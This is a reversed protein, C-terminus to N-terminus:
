APRSQWHRAGGPHIKLRRGGLKAYFGRENEGQHHHHPQLLRREERGARGRHIVRLHQGLRRNPLSHTLRPAFPPAICLTASYSCFLVYAWDYGFPSPAVWSFGFNVPMFPGQESPAWVNRWGLAATVADTTGALPAGFRANAAAAAAAAAAVRARVGPLGGGGGAASTLGVAGGGLPAAFRALPAAPACVGACHDFNCSCAESACDRDFSCPFGGPLGPPYVPPLASPPALPPATAFLAVPQLGAGAFSLGGPQEAVAGRRGWAFRGSFAVAFENPNALGPQPTVLIDVGGGPGGAVEVSVNLLLFTVFFQSYAHDLTHSGVRVPPLHPDGGNGDIQAGSLCAGTPLHCIQSTVVASDPLLVTSLIDRHLWGGWGAMMGRQLARRAVEPAPLAPNLLDPPLPSFPAGSSAPASWRLELSAFSGFSASASPHLHAVVPLNFRKSRLTFNLTDMVGNASNNNAGHQCVLHNDVWVFVFALNSHVCLFDFSTANPSFSGVVEASLFSPSIPLSLSLTDINITVTSSTNVLASNSFTSLQLSGSRVCCVCLALTFFRKKMKRKEQKDLM